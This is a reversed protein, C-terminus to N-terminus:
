WPAELSWAANAQLTGNAGSLSGINATTVGVGERHPYLMLPSATERGFYLDRIQNRTLVGDIRVEGLNGLLNNSGGGVAAGIAGTNTTNWSLASSDFTAAADLYQVGNRYLRIRDGAFDGQMTYLAWVNAVFPLTVSQAEAAEGDLGRFTSVFSTGSSQLELRGAATGNTTLDVLRVTGGPTPMRAWASVTIGPQGALMQGVTNAPLSVFDGTGDMFISAWDKELRVPTMPVNDTWTCANVNGAAGGQADVAAGTAGYGQNLNYLALPAPATWSYMDARVQAQTLPYGWLALRSAFSTANMQINADTPQSFTGVPYTGTGSAVIEGNIYLAHTATVNDWTCAVHTWEGRPIAGGSLSTGGGRPVLELTGSTTVRFQPPSGAATINQYIQQTAVSFSGNSQVWACISFGQATVFAPPSAFSVTSSGTTTFRLAAYFDRALHKFSNYARPM